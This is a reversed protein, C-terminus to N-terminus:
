KKSQPVYETGIKRSESDFDGGPLKTGSTLTRPRSIPQVYWSPVSSFPIGAGGVTLKKVSVEFGKCPLPHCYCAESSLRQKQM